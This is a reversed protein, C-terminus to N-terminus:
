GQQKKLLNRFLDLYHQAFTSPAFHRHAFEAAQNALRDRSSNDLCALRHIAEALAAPSGKEFLFGNRNDDVLLPHDLTDSLIVPRGCALAECVANPLGEVVSAHVLAHYRPLEHEIRKTEPLWRWQDTLRLEGILRNLREFEQQESPTLEPYRRAFWDVRAMVRFEDRLHALGRIICEPQKFTGIQGVAALLWPEAAAPLPSPRFRDLDVGNWITVIRDALRPHKNQLYRGMHHSNVVIRDAFRWFFESARQWFRRNPNNPGSRESIVLPVQSRAKLRGLIAYLSPATLYALVGNIPESSSLIEAVRNVVALSFKDRKDVVEVPIKWQELLSQHYAQERYVLFRVRHGFRTLERALLVLQQQAGGSSLHDIILLLTLKDAAM